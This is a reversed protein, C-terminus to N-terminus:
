VALKVELFAVRKQLLNVEKRISEIEKEREIILKVLAEDGRLILAKLDNFNEQMTKELRGLREENKDFRLWTEQKFSQLSQNVLIVLRLTEKVDKQLAAIQPDNQFPM